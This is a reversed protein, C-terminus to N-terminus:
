RPDWGASSDRGSRVEDQQFSLKAKGKSREKKRQSAALMPSLEPSEEHEDATEKQRVATTRPKRSKFM